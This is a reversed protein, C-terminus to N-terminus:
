HLVVQRYSILKRKDKLTLMPAERNTCYYRNLSIIFTQVSICHNYLMAYYVVTYM